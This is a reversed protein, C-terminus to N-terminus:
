KRVYLGQAAKFQLYVYLMYLCSFAFVLVIITNLYGAGVQKSIYFILATICLRALQWLSEIHVWGPLLITSSLPSSLTQFLVLVSLVSAIEGALRWDNGFVFSFIQPGFLLVPLTPMFAFILLRKISAIFIERCQGNKAYQAAAEQRYVDGIASAILSLPASMVRQALSYLGAVGTGFFISLLVIPMEASGVSMAQGPVMYKPYKIHKRAVFCMRRISIQRLLRRDDSSLSVALFITSILQGILQGIILGQLGIKSLGAAVQVAGSGGSQVVRSVAMEKYYVRRNAWYNLAHYCGVVFTTLPIFYLWPGIEPHGIITIIQAHWVLVIVLLVLSILLSLVGTVAVINIAESNYKPVVIALEYKGTVLVALVACISAYLAFVGFDEPTYLRTLIPSLAIPLVQALGTGTMLTIVSKAFATKPIIWKFKDTFALM